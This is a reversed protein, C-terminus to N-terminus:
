KQNGSVKQLGHKSVSNMYQPCCELMGLFLMKGWRGVLMKGKNQVNKKKRRDKSAAQDQALGARYPVCVTKEKDAPEYSSSQSHKILTTKDQLILAIPLLWGEHKYSVCTANIRVLMSRKFGRLKTDKFLCM